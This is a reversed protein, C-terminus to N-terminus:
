LAPGLFPNKGIKKFMKRRKKVFCELKSSWKYIVNVFLSKMIDELAEFLYLSTKLFKENSLHSLFSKVKQM